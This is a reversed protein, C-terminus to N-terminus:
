NQTQAFRYLILDKTPIKLPFFTSLGKSQLNVNMRMSFIDVGAAGQNGLVRRFARLMNEREVVAEM